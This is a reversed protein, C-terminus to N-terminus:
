KSYKWIDKGIDTMNNYHKKDSKMDLFQVFEELSNKSNDRFFTKSYNSKARLCWNVYDKQWYTEGYNLKSECIELTSLDIEIYRYGWPLLHLIKSDAYYGWFSCYMNGVLFTGWLPKLAADTKLIMKDTKKYVCVTDGDYPFLFIYMGTAVIRAFQDATIGYEAALEICDLLNGKNDARYIYNGKEPLIWIDEGWVSISVVSNPINIEFMRTEKANVMCICKTEYVSFFVNIGDSSSPMCLHKKTIKNQVDYWNDIQKIPKMDEVSILIIPENTDLPILYIMNDEQRVESIRHKAFLPYIYKISKDTTNYVIWNENVSEPVLIIESEKKVVGCIRIINEKHIQMPALVLEVEKKCLNIKYLGLSLEDYAWIYDKEAYFFAVRGLFENMYSLTQLRMKEWTLVDNDCDTKLSCCSEIMHVLKDLTEGM